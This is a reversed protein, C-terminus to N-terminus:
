ADRARLAELVVTLRDGPSMQMWVERIVMPVRDRWDDAGQVIAFRTFVDDRLDPNQSRLSRSIITM